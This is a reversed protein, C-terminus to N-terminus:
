DVPTLETDIPPPLNSPEQTDPAKLPQPATPAISIGEIPELNISPFMDAPQEYTAACEWARPDIKETPPQFRARYCSFRDDAILSAMFRGFIPLATRSGQGLASTRFHISRYEGGVWAGAVLKPTVGVFWADSYNNSTGTKGGFEAWHAVPNVYQWLAGTTGGPINMSARLMMQMLYASRYSIAQTEDLEAEYITHGERDVIREVLLPMNYRGDAMVTCYSNVLELLSVDSAGLSLAPVEELPSTIGMRYATQAVHHIGMENGLKVAISNVSQAFATKLPMSAGTFHGSANRPVWQKPEGTKTTDTYATWQDVRQTCPTLGQNMAETYVFLKFTSGPQRMATVKDYKWSNFDIDGVWARLRRTHPEIAVFGSHLFRVMYRISDMTSVNLEVPGDYGFLRTPRPLNMYYDISDPSDAFRSELDRYRETRRAIDEIFGAIERHNEDQWPNQGEWHEDFRQQLTRMQETVAQEAYAQIRTDITTYIKLGDAYLDLRDNSMGHILGLDCLQDIYDNLGTRFYPALGDYSSEEVREVCEIPLRQLSDLQHQTAPMGGIIIGDHDYLNQLVVNRRQRANDPHLRPNYASTAKLLGILTAAQEYTLRDPTTAFYTRAATKIGFSNSGFDVTNFYMTLIEEKTFAHELKTAVIWEKLKMVILKVGPINGLLGTSYQTRVRFMIKALQQTITSAGRAHGRFIDKTASLLGAFDIGHHHYFREDETAILTRVVIPNIDEYRVPTRNESFFRGILVSDASYIESAENNVPHSIRDYTPSKGFLNLLNNDVALLLLLFAVILTGAWVLLKRWWPGSRYAWRLPRAIAKLTHKITM